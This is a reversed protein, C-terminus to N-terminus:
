IFPKATKHCQERNKKKRAVKMYKMDQSLKFSLLFLVNPCRDTHPPFYKWSQIEQLSTEKEVM